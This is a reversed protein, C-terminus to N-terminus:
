IVPTQFERSLYQSEAVELDSLERWVKGVLLQCLRSPTILDRGLLYSDPPLRGEIASYRSFFPMAHRSPHSQLAKNWRLPEMDRAVGRRQLSVLVM